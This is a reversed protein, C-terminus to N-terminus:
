LPKSIEEKMNSCVDYIAKTIDKELNEATAEDIYCSNFYKDIIIDHIIAKVLKVQLVDMWEACEKRRPWFVRNWFKKWLEKPSYLTITIKKM